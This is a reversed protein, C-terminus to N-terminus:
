NSSQSSTNHLMERVRCFLASCGVPETGRFALVVEKTAKSRYVWAQTETDTCDVYAVPVWAVPYGALEALAQSCAPPWPTIILGTCMGQELDDVVQM